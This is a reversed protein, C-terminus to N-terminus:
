KPAIRRSDFFITLYINCLSLLIRQTREYRSWELVFFLFPLVACAPRPRTALPCQDLSQRSQRPNAIASDYRREPPDVWDLKRSLQRANRKQVNFAIGPSESKSEKTIIKDVMVAGIQSPTPHIVHKGVELSSPRFEIQDRGSFALRRDITPALRQHDILLSENFNLPDQQRKTVASSPDFQDQYKRDEM